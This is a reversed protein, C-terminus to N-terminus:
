VAEIVTKDDDNAPVADNANFACGNLVSDKTLFSELWVIFASKTTVPLKPTLPLTYKPVITLSDSEPFTRTHFLEFLLTSLLVMSCIAPVLPVLPVDPISPVLPTSPAVPVLPTSPEDPTSPVLPTSPPSPAGPVEPVDPSGPVLPTSPVEPVDAM